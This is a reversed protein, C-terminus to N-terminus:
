RDRSRGDAPTAAGQQEAVSRALKILLSRVSSPLRRMLHIIDLEAPEPLPERSGPWSFDRLDRPLGVFFDDLRIELARSLLFLRSAPIRNSSREYKQVQQFSVGIAHGLETQTLGRVGRYYHLQQGAVRDILKLQAKSVARSSRSPEAM